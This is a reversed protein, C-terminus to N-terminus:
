LLLWEKDSRNLRKLLSFVYCCIYSPSHCSQPANTQDRAGAEHGLTRTCSTSDVIAGSPQKTLTQIHTFPQVHYYRASQNPLATDSRSLLNVCHM